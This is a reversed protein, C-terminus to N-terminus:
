LYLYLPHLLTALALIVPLLRFAIIFDHQPAARDFLAPGGALCGFVPRAGTETAQQVALVAAGVSHFAQRALPLNLLILALCFQAAITGAVILLGRRVGLHARNESISWALLPIIVLGFLAQAQVL